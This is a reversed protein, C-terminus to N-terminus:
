LAGDFDGQLNLRREPEPCFTTPRELMSSGSAESVGPGPGKGPAWWWEVGSVGGERADVGFM